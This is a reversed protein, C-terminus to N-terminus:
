PKWTMYDSMRAAGAGGIERIFEENDATIGGLGYVPITLKEQLNKLFDLGKAELGKKCDTEFIHSALVYSAGLSQAERGEELSHVSAGVYSFGDLQGQAQRLDPMSLQIGEAKLEIAVGVFSHLVCLRDYHACLLIVEQALNKYAETSLDKERLILVDIQPLIIEIQELFPRQCLKRNTLAIRKFTSM